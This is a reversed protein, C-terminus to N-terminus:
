TAPELQTTLTRLDQSLREPALPPSFVARLRGRPDLLFVQSPHEVGYAEDPAADPVAFEVRLSDALRRLASMDGSAGLFDDNFSAAYARADAPTDRRPDVSVFAVRPAPTEGDYEDMTAALTQLTLPCVDPCNTFGLFVLSWRGALAARLPREDATHVPTDPIRAYDRPLITGDVERQLGARREEPSPALWASGAWIGAALAAVFVSCSILLASRSSMPRIM